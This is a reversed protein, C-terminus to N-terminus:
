KEKYFIPYHISKQFNLIYLINDYQLITRLVEIINKQLYLINPTPTSLYYATRLRLM